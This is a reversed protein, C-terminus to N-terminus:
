SWSAISNSLGAKFRCIIDFINTVIIRLIITITIIIAIIPSTEPKLFTVKQPLLSWINTWGQKLYHIIAINFPTFWALSYHFWPTSICAWDFYCKVIFWITTPAPIKNIALPVWCVLLQICSPNKLKLKNWKSICLNTLIDSGQKWMEKSNIIKTKNKQKQERYLQQM